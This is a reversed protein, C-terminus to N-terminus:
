AARRCSVQYESLNGNVGHELTPVKRHEGDRTYDVIRNTIVCITM